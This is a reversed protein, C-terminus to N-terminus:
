NPRVRRRQLPTPKASEFGPWMDVQNTQQNDIPCPTSVGSASKTRQHLEMFVDELDLDEVSIEADYQKRLENLLSEDFDTVTILAQSGEVLPNEDLALEM